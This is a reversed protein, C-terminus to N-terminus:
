DTAPDPTPEDIRRFTATVEYLAGEEPDHGFLQKFSRPNFQCFVRGERAKDMTNYMEVYTSHRKPTKRVFLKM